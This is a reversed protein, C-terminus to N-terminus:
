WNSHTTFWKDNGQHWLPKITCWGEVDEKKFVGLINGEEDCVLFGNEDISIIYGDIIDGDKKVKVRIPIDFITIM